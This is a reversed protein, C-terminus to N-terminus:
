QIVRIDYNKSIEYVIYINAIKGHDYTIKDQKLCSRKFGVRTRALYSLQRHLSYDNITAAAINGDALEKSKLFYHYNGSGVGSARKFYKYM